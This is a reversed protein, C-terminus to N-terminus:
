SAPQLDAIADLIAQRQELKDRLTDKAESVVAPPAKDVFGPNALRTELGGIDKQLKALQRDLRDIEKAVDKNAQLDAYPVFAELGDAVVIRAADDPLVVPIQDVVTLRDADVKALLELAATEERIADALAANTACVITVAMRTKTDCNYEARINRLARVLDRWLNFLVVANQDVPLGEAPWPAVMLAEPGDTTKCVRQWLYETVHPMFPHVLRLGVDLAYLLVRNATESDERRRRTKSIEVYWDALEDWVFEYVLRGAEGVAYDELAAAVSEATSRARSAIWREPLRLSSLDEDDDEVLPDPTADGFRYRAFRAINWLKNAFNRSQEVRDMSLPVDQGPTVGTVLTYRLADAGYEEVVALPDVVNGKTKSMKQGNADRVLGHMYITDFPPKGTFEIGLMVMRAVWFFLIDYGTELCNAPYFKQFDPNTEDPWGLTAFPWLGSSFWTDLVDEDRTLVDDQPALARADEESRAVIVRGDSSYWAPVRHGWWLQRSVCWDEINDLWNFWEKEFRAPVIRIDGDRVAAAARAGMVTTNVFWQTSVMPEIVEGGRQSVPVRQPREEVRVALGKAELDAWLKKRCEFRDLGAYEFYEDVISADPGMVEFIPLDYKEGIAYDNPDHGPTIKLAGTGFEPDVYEDAIVPVRRGVLPVVATRGVLGAYREDNPNVCVAADGLITEPRTTAVELFLGEEGEIPYKFFYLKGVREVTEVELDSVATQLAPSWNVMRRGRYVLGAEHLRAFAETVAVSLAPELTFKERSWDASAGLRRMQDVIAGGHEEKWAWVRELFAERGLEARSSGEAEVAREVLLQTAIGAHDTGPLWLTPRGRMRHFRALIDQLAVFMAHGLHLRGTVNPPPMPITYAAKEGEGPKFFGSEEWWAYISEEFSKFEYRPPLESSSAASEVVDSKEAVSERCTTTRTRTTRTTRTTTTTAAGSSLRRKRFAPVGRRGAVVLAGGRRLLAGMVIAAKLSSSVM